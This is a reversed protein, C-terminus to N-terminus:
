EAAVWTEEDISKAVVQLTKGDYQYLWRCPSAGNEAGIDACETGHHNVSLAPTGEYSSQTAGRMCNLRFPQMSGNQDAIWLSANSGCNGCWVEGSSDCTCSPLSVLRGMQQEAGIIFDGAWPSDNSALYGRLAEAESQVFEPNSSCNVAFAAFEIQEPSGAPGM